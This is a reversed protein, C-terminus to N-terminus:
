TESTPDSSDHPQSDLYEPLTEVQVSLRKFGTSVHDLTKAIKALENAAKTEPATSADTGFLSAVELPSVTEHARRHFPDFHGSQYRATVDVAADGLAKYLGGFQGWTIVRKASPGLAPIGSILPGETMEKALPPDPLFGFAHSPLPRSLEFTVNKALSRGTNEIILLIISPRRVDPTAYVIVCPDVAARFVLYSVLVSGVAVAVAVVTIWFGALVTWHPDVMPAEM